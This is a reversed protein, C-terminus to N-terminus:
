VNTNSYTVPIQCIRPINYNLMQYLKCVEKLDLENDLVKQVGSFIGLMENSGTADEMINLLDLIKNEVTEQRGHKGSAASTEKPNHFGKVM